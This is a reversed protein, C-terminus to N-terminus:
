LRNLGKRASSSVGRYGGKAPFIMGVACSDSLGEDRNVKQGGQTDDQEPFHISEPIINSLELHLCM